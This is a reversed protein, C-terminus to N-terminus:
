EAPPTPRMVGNEDRALPFEQTPLPAGPMEDITVGYEWDAPAVAVYRAYGGTGGLPKAFGIIVLAGAEPVQDLNAVGEAQAFNNHMLWAEGELTPTTDTDLPEHGHFLINRELHLFKLADLSVGPFPRAMFSDIDGWHKSWDSRVMVVSGAPVQGHEAEWAEIDSVQLHYGADAAVQESIDMVVLPRIAFTAPLDSITAGLPNWHAPPDLQTGYQDTPLDYATAVFGHQEYTFEDGVAAYGELPQGAVAARFEAQGFGPWVAQVPEFAHTLDIYKATRFLEDYAGWLGPPEQAALPAAAAMVAAAAFLSLRPTM